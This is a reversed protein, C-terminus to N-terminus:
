RYLQFSNRPMNPLLPDVLDDVILDAPISYVRYGGYPSKEYKTILADDSDTGRAKRRRAVEKMVEDLTQCYVDGYEM